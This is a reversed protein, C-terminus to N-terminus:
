RRARVGEYRTEPQWNSIFYSIRTSVGRVILDKKKLQIVKICPTFQFLEDESFPIVKSVASKFLGCM